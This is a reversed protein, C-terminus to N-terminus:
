RNKPEALRSCSCILPRSAARGRHQKRRKSKRNTVPMSEDAVLLKRWILLQSVSAARSQQEHIHRGLDVAYESDATQDGTINKHRAIEVPRKFEALVRDDLRILRVPAFGLRQVFPQDLCDASRVRWLQDLFALPHFDGGSLDDRALALSGIRHMENELTADADEHIPALPAPQPHATEAPMGRD